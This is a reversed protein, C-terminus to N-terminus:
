RELRYFRGSRYRLTKVIKLDTKLAAKLSGINDTKIICFVPRDSKELAIKYLFTGLGKKRFNPHVALHCIENYVKANSLTPRLGVVGVVKNAVLLPFYKIKSTKVLHSDIKYSMAGHNILLKSIGKALFDNDYPVIM